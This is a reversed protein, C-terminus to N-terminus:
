LVIIKFIKEVSGSPGTVKLRLYYLGRAVRIGSKDKLDWQFSGSGTIEATGWQIKRFSITFVEWDVTM